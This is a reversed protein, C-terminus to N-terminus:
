QNSQKVINKDNIIFYHSLVIILLFQMLLIQMKMGNYVINTALKSLTTIAAM